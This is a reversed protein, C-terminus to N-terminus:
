AATSLLVSQASSFGDIIIVNMAALGVLLALGSHWRQWFASWEALLQARIAGRAEVGNWPVEALCGRWLVGDGSVWIQIEQFWPAQIDGPDHRYLCVQPVHPSGCLAHSQKRVGSSEM